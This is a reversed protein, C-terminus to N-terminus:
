ARQAMKRAAHELLRVERPTLDARQFLARWDAFYGDTNVSPLAEVAVLGDRLLGLMREKEAHTARRGGAVPRRSARFVEYAAVMVAHSLNLSPQDPHSPIRVRRGCLSLEELTLGSTEPGFVLAAEEEKGVAAVDRAMDRVDQVVVGSDRRGTFGAVLASGGLASPLDPLVRAEELVDHAGWATRWCEVTRWDGPAVLRLGSLGANRVV